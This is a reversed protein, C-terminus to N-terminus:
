SLKFFTCKLFGGGVGGVNIKQFEYIVIGCMKLMMGCMKPVMGCMKPVMRFMKPVMGCMKPVM